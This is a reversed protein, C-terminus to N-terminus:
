IVKAHDPRRARASRRTNRWTPSSSTSTRAPTLRNAARWSWPMAAMGSSIPRRSAFARPRISLAATSRSPPAISASAAGTVTRVEVRNGFPLVDFAQAFTVAAPSGPANAPQGVLDARIGGNNWLALQAGGSAAASTQELIADAIVNGLASEGADNTAEMIPATLTGIHRQGQLAFFPRYHDIIGTIATAKAIDRSVIVNRATKSVVEGTARDIRLDIDTILAGNSKASTM